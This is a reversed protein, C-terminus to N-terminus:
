AKLLKSKWAKRSGWVLVLVRTGQEELSMGVTSRVSKQSLSAGFDVVWVVGDVTVEVLGIMVGGPDLGLMM